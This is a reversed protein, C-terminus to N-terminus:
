GKKPPQAPSCYFPNYQRTECKPCVVICHKKEVEFAENCEEIACFVWNDEIPKATYELNDKNCKHFFDPNEANIHLMNNSLNNMDMYSGDYLYELTEGEYRDKSMEKMYSKPIYYVGKTNKSDVKIWIDSMTNDVTKFYAKSIPRLYKSDDIVWYLEEREDLNYYLYYVIYKKGITLNNTNDWQYRTGEHNLWNNLKICEIIM